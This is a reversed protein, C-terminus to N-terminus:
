GRGRNGGLYIPYKLFHADKDTAPDPSLIPFVLESYKKGPVLGIVIINKKNPRYNQFYLNGMNQRIEPSIHNLPSLEFGEPLILVVGVNLAGKKGNALVQKMQTDYPIKVVAEFITNPLV